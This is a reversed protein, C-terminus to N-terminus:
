QGSSIREVQDTSLEELPGDGTRGCLVYGIRSVERALFEETDANAKGWM